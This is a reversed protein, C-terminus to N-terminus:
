TTEQYLEAIDGFVIRRNRNFDYSASHQTTALDDLHRVLVTADLSPVQRDSDVYEYLGDNDPDTRPKEDGIPELSLPTFVNVASIPSGANNTVTGATTSASSAMDPKRSSPIGGSANGRNPTAIITTGAVEHLDLFNRRSSSAM